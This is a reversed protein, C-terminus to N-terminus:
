RGARHARIWGMGYPDRALLVDSARLINTTQVDLPNAIASTLGAGAAMALFSSNLVDRGPLGFSVNSAGLTTNARLEERVLRLTELTVLAARPEAGVTMALPDIVVDESPIGHDAAREIIRRAICLREAPDPSPGTEDMALGIVAARHQAVLPLIKELKEEEGTVSNVLPKGHAAELGAAIAEPVASDISLPVEAAEQVEEVLRALLGAEDTGPLGANLDLMVAGREVQALADAIARTFNGLLLEAALTKRGTPNIREGIIVFPRDPGIIVQRRRSELVTEM